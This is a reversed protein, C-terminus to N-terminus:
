PLKVLQFTGSGNDQGAAYQALRVGPVLEGNAPAIMSMSHVAQVGVATSPAVDKYVYFRHHRYDTGNACSDLSLIAGDNVKRDRVELCRGLTKSMFVHEPFAATSSNRCVRWQQAESGNWAQIAVDKTNGTMADGNGTRLSYYGPDCVFGSPVGQVSVDPEAQAKRAQPRKGGPECGLQAKALARLTGAPVTDGCSISGEEIFSFTTFTGGPRRVWETREPEGPRSVASCNLSVHTGQVQRTGKYLGYYGPLNFNWVIKLREISTTAKTTRVSFGVKLGVLKLIGEGFPGIEVSRNVDTTLVTQQTLEYERLGTTGETVNVATYHTITPTVEATEIWHFRKGLDEATCANGPAPAAQAKASAAVGAGSLLVLVAAATVLTRM